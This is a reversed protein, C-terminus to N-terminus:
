RYSFQVSQIGEDRVNECGRTDCGLDVEDSMDV